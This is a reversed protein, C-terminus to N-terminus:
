ELPVATLSDCEWTCIGIRVNGAAMARLPISVLVVEKPAHAVEHDINPPHRDMRARCSDMPLDRLCRREEINDEVHAGLGPVSM